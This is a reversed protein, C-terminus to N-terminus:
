KHAQHCGKCDIKKLDKPDDSKVLKVVAETKEKWSAEEGKPCKLAALATYLDILAKKEENTAKGSMVKGRLGDKGHAKAMIEKVTPEKKDTKETKDKGGEANGDIVLILACLVFAGAILRIMITGVQHVVGGGQSLM